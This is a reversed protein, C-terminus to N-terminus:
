SIRFPDYIAVVTEGMDLSSMLNGQAQADLWTRNGGWVKLQHGRWM